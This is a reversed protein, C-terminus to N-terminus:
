QDVWRIAKFSGDSQQTIFIASGHELIAPNINIAFGSFIEPQRFHSQLHFFADLKTLSRATIYGGCDSLQTFCDVSQIDTMKRNSRFSFIINIHLFLLYYCYLFLCPFSVICRKNSYQQRQKSLAISEQHIGKACQSISLKYM